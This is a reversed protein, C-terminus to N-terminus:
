RNGLSIPLTIKVTTGKGKESSINILGNHEDIIRHAISLGLGTGQTKNSFFPNYLQPIDQSPIGIGIDSITILADKKICESKVTLEGGEPMADISNSFINLFVEKLKAQDCLIELLGNKLENHVAIKQKEFRFKLFQLSKMILENIDAKALEPATPKAFNLFKAILGEAREIEELVLGINEGEKLNSVEPKLMDLFLKVSTLVTNVEHAVGAGMEGLFTLRQAIELQEQLKKKQETLRRMDLARKLVINVDEINFPKTIYDFCGQKMAEKATDITAYGTIVIIIFDKRLKKIEKLLEVGEMRPMKLDMILVDFNTEKIKELTEIGDSALTVDNGKQILFREFLDRIVQEDDAILIRPKDM